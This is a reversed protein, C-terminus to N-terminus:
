YSTQLHTLIIHYSIIHYSPYKVEICVKCM